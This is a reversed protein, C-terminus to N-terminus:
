PTEIRIFAITENPPQKLAHQTVLDGWRCITASFLLRPDGRLPQAFNGLDLCLLDLRLASFLRFRREEVPHAIPSFTLRRVCGSSTSSTAVSPPCYSDFAM